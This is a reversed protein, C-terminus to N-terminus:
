PALFYWLLFGGMVLYSGLKTNDIIYDVKKEGHQKVLKSRYRTVTYHVGLLFFSLIPIIMLETTFNHVQNIERQTCWQLCESTITNNPVMWPLALRVTENPLMASIDVVSHQTMESLVQHSTETYARTQDNRRGIGSSTAFLKRCM